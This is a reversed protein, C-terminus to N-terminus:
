EALDLLAVHPLGEHIAKFCRGATVYRLSSAKTMYIDAYNSCQQAFRSQGYGAVFLQGWVANFKEHHRQNLDGVKEKTEDDAKEIEEIIRSLEAMREESPPDAEDDREVELLDRYIDLEERLARFRAIPKQMEERTEKYVECEKELEPV